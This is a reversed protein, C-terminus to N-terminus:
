RKEGRSERSVAGEACPSRTYTQVLQAPLIASVFGFRRCGHPTRAQYTVYYHPCGRCQRAPGPAAQNM